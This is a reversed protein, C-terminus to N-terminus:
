KFWNFSFTSKKNLDLEFDDDTNYNILYALGERIDIEVINGSIYGDQYCITFGNDLLNQFEQIAKHTM